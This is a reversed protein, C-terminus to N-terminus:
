HRSKYLILLRNWIFSTIGSHTIQDAFTIFFATCNKFVYKPQQKLCLLLPERTRIYTERHLKHLTTIFEGTYAEPGQPHPKKKKNAQKKFFISEM